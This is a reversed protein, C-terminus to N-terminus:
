VMQFYFEIYIQDIMSPIGVVKAVHPPSHDLYLKGHRPKMMNSSFLTANAGHQIWSPLLSPSTLVPQVPRAELINEEDSYESILGDPFLVTYINPRDYSPIGVVKAV